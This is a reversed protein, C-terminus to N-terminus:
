KTRKVSDRFMPLSASSLLDRSSLVNIVVAAMMSFPLVVLWKLLKAYNMHFSLSFDHVFSVKDEDWMELHITGTSRTTPCPVELTYVGPVTYTDTMGIVPADGRGIVDATMGQLLVMVSTLQFNAKANTCLYICLYLDFVALAEPWIPTCSHM